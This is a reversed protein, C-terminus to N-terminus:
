SEPDQLRRAHIAACCACYPLTHPFLPILVAVFSILAWGLLPLRWLLPLLLPRPLSRFYRDADRLSVDEHLFVYYGFGSRKGSLLFAGLGLLICVTLCLAILIGPPDWIARVNRFILVPVVATMLVWGLAELGVAMSRGYARPSTFPYFLRILTASSQKGAPADEPPPTMLCALRWIGSLLPLLLFLCLLAFLLDALNGLLEGSIMAPDTLVYALTYIGSSLVYLGGAVILVILYALTLTLRNRGGNRNLTQRAQRRLGSAQTWVASLRDRLPVRPSPTVTDM